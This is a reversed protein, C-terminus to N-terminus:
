RMVSLGVSLIFTMFRHPFFSFIYFEEKLEDFVVAIDAPDM